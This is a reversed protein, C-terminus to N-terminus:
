SISDIVGRYLNARLTKQNNHYFQFQQTEIKVYQDTLWQQFLKCGHHLYSTLSQIALHYQMYQELTTKQNCNQSCHLMLHWGNTGYPFLLPYALPDYSRHCETFFALNSSDNNRSTQVNCVINCRSHAIFEPM